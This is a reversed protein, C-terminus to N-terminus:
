GSQGIASVLLGLPSHQTLIIEIRCPAGDPAQLDESGALTLRVLRGATHAAATSALGFRSLWPPPDAPWPSIDTVEAPFIRPGLHNSIAIRAAMGTEIRQGHEPSFFMVAEPQHSDGTRIEAVAAGATVAQGKVLASATLEGAQSSAIVEGAAELSALKILEARASALEASLWGESASGPREAQEELLAVRARVVQLRWGLEPLKLRAIPQGAEVMEGVDATVESVTGSVVSVLTYREGPRVLAGDSSLTREVSGFVGWAVAVLLLCALGALLMWEHPATVRLLDDLPEPQANRMLARERFLSKKFM